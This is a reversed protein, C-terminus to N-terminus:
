TAPTGTSARLCAALQQREVDTLPVKQPLTIGPSDLLQQCLDPQRAALLILGILVTPTPVRQEDWPLYSGFRAVQEAKALLGSAM